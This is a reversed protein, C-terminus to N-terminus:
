SSIYTKYLYILDSMNVTNSHVVSSFDVQQVKQNSISFFVHGLFLIDRVDHTILLLAKHENQILGLLQRFLDEKTILDLASFPEDLLLLDKRVLCQMALAVRQKQGESLEDPFKSLLPELKFNVIITELKNSFEHNSINKLGIEQVLWLNKLVSRWPLLCIKQQMYAVDRISIPCGDWLISGHFYPLLGAILRFLTTKGSGSSGLFVGVEGRQIKFNVNKFILNKEYSFSLNKVELM